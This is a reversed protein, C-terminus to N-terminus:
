FYEPFWGHEQQLLARRHQIVITMEDVAAGPHAHADILANGQADLGVIGLELANAFRSIM